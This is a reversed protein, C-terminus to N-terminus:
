FKSSTDREIPRLLIAGPTIQVATQLRVAECVNKKKPLSIMLSRSSAYYPCFPVYDKGARRRRKERKPATRIGAVFEVGMEGRVRRHRFPPVVHFSSARRLPPTTITPAALSGGRPICFAAQVERCTTPNAAAFSLM